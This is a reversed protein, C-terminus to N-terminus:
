EGEESAMIRVPKLEWGQMRAMREIIEVLVAERTTPSMEPYSSEVGAKITLTSVLSVARMYDDLSFM